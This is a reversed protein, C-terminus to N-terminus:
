TIIFHRALDTVADAASVVIFIGAVHLTRTCAKGLKTDNVGKAESYGTYYGV